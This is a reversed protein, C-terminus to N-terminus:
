KKERRVYLDEYCRCAGDFESISKPAVAGSMRNISKNPSMCCNCRSDWTKVAPVLLEFGFDKLVCWINPEANGHMRWCSCYIREDTTSCVRKILEHMIGQKRYNPKVCTWDLELSNYFDSWFLGTMGVLIEGGKTYDFVLLYRQSLDPLVEKMDLECFCSLVLDRIAFKDAETDRSWRYKLMDVDM